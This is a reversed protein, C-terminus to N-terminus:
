RLVLAVESGDSIETSSGATGSNEVFAQLSFTDKVRQVQENEVDSVAVFYLLERLLDPNAKSDGSSLLKLEQDLKRCLKKTPVGAESASQALTNAFASASWWLTKVNSKHQSSTVESLAEVMGGVAGEDKGQVWNLLSKQYQLRQKVIFAAYEEESFEQSPVDKPVTFSTDPFFFASEDVSEDMAAVIPQLVPYLRLPIDNSGNLLEQIYYKLTKIAKSFSELLDPTAELEQKELKAALKELYSCFLKCGELGVMDLAGSAQYLHTQSFRMDATESPNATLAEVSELVSDLSQYIDDKVWTLPGIDFSDSV